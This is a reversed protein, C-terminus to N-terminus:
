KGLHIISKLDNATLTVISITQNLDIMKNELQGMQKTQTKGREEKEANQPM